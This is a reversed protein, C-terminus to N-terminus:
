MNIKITKRHDVVATEENKLATQLKAVKDNLKGNNPRYLALLEQVKSYVSLATDAEQFEDDAIVPEFKVVKQGPPVPGSFNSQLEHRQEKGAKSNLFEPTNLVCM